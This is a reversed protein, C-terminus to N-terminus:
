AGVAVRKEGYRPDIVIDDIHVPKATRIVELYREYRGTKKLTPVLELINKGMMETKKAGPAFTKLGAENAEVLNLEKDWLVFADTASDMFSRLRDE